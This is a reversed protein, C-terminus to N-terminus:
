DSWVRRMIGRRMIGAFEQELLRDILTAHSLYMKRADRDRIIELGVFTGATFFKGDHSLSYHDNFDGQQSFSIMSMLAFLCKM